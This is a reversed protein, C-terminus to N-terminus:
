DHPQEPAAPLPQWRTRQFPKGHELWGHGTEFHGIAHRDVTPGYRPTGYLLVPRGSLAARHYEDGNTPQWDTM